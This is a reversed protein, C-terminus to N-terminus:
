AGLPCRALATYTPGKSSLNSRFVTVAAVSVASHTPTALLADAAELARSSVAHPSRARVLTAHPKFTRTEPNAGVELAARECAAALDSGLGSEDVFTAWLMRPRKLGSVARTKGLGLEFRPVHAVERCCANVLTQVSPEPIHGVFKLTIHLNPVPVWKEGAWSPDDARIVAGVQELVAHIEPPLEIAIFCRVSV